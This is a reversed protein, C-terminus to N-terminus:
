IAIPVKYDAEVNKFLRAHRSTDSVTMLSFALIDTHILYKGGISAIYKQHFINKSMLQHLINRIFFPRDLDRGLKSFQYTSSKLVLVYTSSKWFFLKICWLPIYRSSTKCKQHFFYQLVINYVAICNQFGRFLYM